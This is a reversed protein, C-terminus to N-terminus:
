EEPLPFTFHCKPCTVSPGNDNPIDEGKWIGHTIEVAALRKEVQASKAKEMDAKEKERKAQYEALKRATEAKALEQNARATERRLQENEARVREREEVEAKERAVREEEAKAEALKRQKEREAAIQNEVFKEQEELYKEVPEILGKLTKAIGDIVQGERLSQEKLKVRAKEIDIRKDRLFLRGTRAMAMDATQSADTVHITKAKAEWEAALSFYGTFHDLLFQAKSQELGSEKVIIELKNEM